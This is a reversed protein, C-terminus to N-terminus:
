INTIFNMKGYFESSRGLFVLKLDHYENSVISLLGDVGKVLPVMWLTSVTKLTLLGPGTAM